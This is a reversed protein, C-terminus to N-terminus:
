VVGLIVLVFVAFLLHKTPPSHDIGRLLDNIGAGVWEWFRDWLTVSSERNYARGRFVAAITDRVAATTSDLQLPNRRNHSRRPRRAAASRNRWSSSTTDRRASGRM